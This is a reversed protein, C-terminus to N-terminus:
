MTPVISSAWSFARFSWSAAQVGHCRKEELAGGRITEDDGFGHVLDDSRPALSIKANQGPV